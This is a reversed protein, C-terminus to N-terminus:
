VYLNHGAEDTLVRLGSLRSLLSKDTCKVQKALAAQETYVSLSINRHRNNCQMNRRVAAFFHQLCYIYKRPGRCFQAVSM